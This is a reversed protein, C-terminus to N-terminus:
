AGGLVAFGLGEYFARSRALDTVNLSLSFAGLDM